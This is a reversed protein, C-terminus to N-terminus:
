FSFFFFKFCFFFFGEDVYEYVYVVEELGLEDSDEFDDFDNKLKKENKSNKKSESKAKKDRQATEILSNSLLTTFDVQRPFDLFLKQNGDKEIKLDEHLNWTRGELKCARAKIM